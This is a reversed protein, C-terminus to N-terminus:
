AILDFMRAAAIAVGEPGSAATTVEYGRRGLARATLRRLGEDDDIYLLQHPTDTM